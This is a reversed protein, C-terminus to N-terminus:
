AMKRRERYERPSCLYFRRFQKAYYSAYGFGCNESISTISLTPEAELQNASQMLRYKLLYQMPSESIARKFCRMCEREGIAASAAIDAISIDENYHSHIYKLMQELRLTDVTAAQHPAEILHVYERYLALLLHTLQEQVILEYGIDDNKLADFAVRFCDSHKLATCCTFAPCDILPQVYKRAAASSHSGTILLPSFVLSELSCMPAGVAEHPLNANLIAMEGAHILYEESPIRLKMTGERIYIAELEEHWHWPIHDCPQDSHTSAYGACPFELTGHPQLERFSHNLNLGCKQLGM